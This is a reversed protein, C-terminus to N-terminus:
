APARTQDDATEDAMAPGRCRVAPRATAECPVTPAAISARHGVLGGGVVVEDARNLGIFRALGVDARPAILPDADAHAVHHDHRRACRVQAPVPVM